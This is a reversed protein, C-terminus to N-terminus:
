REDQRPVSNQNHYQISEARTPHTINEGTTAGDRDGTGTGTGVGLGWGTHSDKMEKEKLINNANRRIINQLDTGKYARIEINTNRTNPM